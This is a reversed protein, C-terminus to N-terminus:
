KPLFQEDHAPKVRTDVRLRERFSNSIPTQPAAHIRPDNLADEPRGKALGTPGRM